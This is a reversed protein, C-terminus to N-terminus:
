WGPGESIPSPTAEMKCKAGLPTVYKCTKPPAASPGFGKQKGGCSCEYKYSIYSVWFILYTFNCAPCGVLHFIPPIQAIYVKKGVAQELSVRSSGFWRLSVVEEPQVKSSNRTKDLHTCTSSRVCASHTWLARLESATTVLNWGAVRRFWNIIEQSLLTAPQNGAEWFGLNVSPISLRVLTKLFLSFDFNLIIPLLDKWFEPRVM